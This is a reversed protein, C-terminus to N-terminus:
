FIRLLCLALLDPCLPSIGELWGAVATIGTAWWRQSRLRYWFLLGGSSCGRLRLVRAHTSRGMIKGTGAKALRTHFRETRPGITGSHKMIGVRIM